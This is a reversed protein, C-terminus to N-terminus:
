RRKIQNLMPVLKSVIELLQKVEEITTVNSMSFRITSTLQDQNAGIASLTKSTKPKNSACASGASVFIGYEELAHLMVESRIPYFSASVIHPAADDSIDGHIMIGEIQELGQILMRRCNRMQLLKEDFQTYAEMAAIGIGVIGPVNETGSRLNNQQGGGYLLPKIKVKESIYLFGVGKPGHIKHGSVSLLDIGMKKPFIRYKGYGQIGDVHFIINPNFQHILKAAEEIPQVSGIENNVQMISVLITEKTLSQSLEELSIRGMKDVNLYTVTFGEEELISLPSLVASHEIKTTILHLGARKNARAGGLIAMNDSETGGSTFYIEKEDVKLTRAIRERSTKVAIEANMGKRHLSSPNGYEERFMQNMGEIVGESCVTTASHDFYLESM